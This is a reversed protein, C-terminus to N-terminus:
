ITGEKLIARYDNLEKSLGKRLYFLRSKITGVPMGLVESITALDFEQEYRLLFLSKSEDDL